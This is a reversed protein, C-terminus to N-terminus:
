RLNLVLIWIFDDELSSWRGETDINTFFGLVETSLQETSSNQLIKEGLWNFTLKSDAKNKNQTMSEATMIFM